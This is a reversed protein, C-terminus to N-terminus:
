HLFYEITLLLKMRQSQHILIYLHKGLVLKLLLLSLSQSSITFRILRTCSICRQLTLSPHLLAEDESSDSASGDSLRVVRLVASVGLCTVAAGEGRQYRVEVSGVDTLLLSDDPCM